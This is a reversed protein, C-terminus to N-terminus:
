ADSPEQFSHVALSLLMQGIGFMGGMVFPHFAYGYPSMAICIAGTALFYAAVWFTNPGIQRWASFLGVSYIVGWLGPLIGISGTAHFVIVYTLLAGAFLSPFFSELIRKTSARLLASSTFVWRAGLECGVLIANIVAIVVWYTIFATAYASTAPFVWSQIMAAALGVAGTGAITIARFGRFEEVRVVHECITDIQSLVENLDRSM